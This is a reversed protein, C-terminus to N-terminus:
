IHIFAYIYTCIYSSSKELGHDEFKANANCDRNKFQHKDFKPFSCKM